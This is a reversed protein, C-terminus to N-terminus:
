WNVKVSIFNELIPTRAAKAMAAAPAWAAEIWEADAAASFAVMSRSAAVDAAADVPADAFTEDPIFPDTLADDEPMTPLMSVTEM